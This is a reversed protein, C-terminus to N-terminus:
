RLKKVAIDRKTDDATDFVYHRTDNIYYLKESGDVLTYVRASISYFMPNPRVKAPDYPVAFTVPLKFPPKLEVTGVLPSPGDALATNRISVVIRSIKGVDPQQGFLIKGTVVPSTKDTAEITVAFTKAPKAEKEWPRRYALTISAKGTKVAQYTFTTVGGQGMAPPIEPCRQSATEFKKSKLTLSADKPLPQPEWTFGTTPNADLEIIVLDGVGASVTKGSDANKLNIARGGSPKAAGGAASPKINVSAIMVGTQPADDAIRTDVYFCSKLLGRDDFRVYLRHHPELKTNLIGQAEEYLQDLTKPPSGKKHSGLDRGTETWSEGKPKPPTATQRALARASEQDAKSLIDIPLTITKGDKRKLRLKGDKLDVFEAEVSHKGTSDTWKRPLIEPRPPVPAIPVPALGGGGFARFRREIVKNDRVVIETEHGFGVFSSWRVKYSYNGGCDERLRQWTKLSAQLKEQEKAPPEAGFAFFASAIALALGPIVSFRRMM